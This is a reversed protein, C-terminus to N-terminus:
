TKSKRMLLVATGSIFDVLFHLIMGPYISETYIFIINLMIAFVFIKIVALWGQYFHALSFLFAPVWIATLPFGSNPLLPLFYTVMFGRYIIEEFIGACICLLTYAPMESWLEPLFSSKEYWEKQEGGLKKQNIRLDVWYSVLFFVGVPLIVMWNKMIPASFGLTAWPRTKFYWLGLIISGAVSLMLSNSLYIKKRLSSDFQIDGNLQSSQLGSLFPILIGFLWILSHDSFSPFDIM